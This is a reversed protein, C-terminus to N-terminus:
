AGPSGAAVSARVQRWEWAGAEDRGRRFRLVVRPQRSLRITPVGPSTRSGTVQKPGLRERTVEDRATGDQCGPVPCPLRDLRAAPAEPHPCSMLLDCEARVDARNM